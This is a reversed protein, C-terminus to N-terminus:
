TPATRRGRWPPGPRGRATRARWEGAEAPQVARVGEDQEAEGDAGAHPDFRTARDLRAHRDRDSGLRQRTGHSRLRDVRLRSRTIVGSGRRVEDQQRRQGTQPLGAQQRLAEGHHVHAVGVVAAARHGAWRDHDPAAANPSRRASGWGALRRWTRAPRRATSARCDATLATGPKVTLPVEGPGVIVATCPWSISTCSVLTETVSPTARCQCPMSTGFAISPTAPTVWSATMTPPSNGVAEDGFLDPGVPVVGMLHRVLLDDPPQEARQHDLRRARDRLPRRARPRGCRRRSLVSFPLGSSWRIAASGPSCTRTRTILVSLPGISVQAPQRVPHQGDVPVVHM